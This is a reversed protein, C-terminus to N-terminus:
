SLDDPAQADPRVVPGHGADITIEPEAGAYLVEAAWARAFDFKPYLFFLLLAATCLAALSLCIHWKKKSKKKEM